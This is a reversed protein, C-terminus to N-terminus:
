WPGAEHAARTIAAADALYGSRYAIHSLLVVATRESLAERVLDLSM